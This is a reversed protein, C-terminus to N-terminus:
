LWTPNIGPICSHNFIWLDIHYIVNIFLLIFPLHDDWYIHFYCKVFNLMSEQFLKDDFNSYLSSPHISLWTWNKAIGPEQRGAQWAGRDMSNELCSYVNGNGGGFSRGWGSDSVTHGTNGANAPLNKGSLWMPLGMSPVYRLM